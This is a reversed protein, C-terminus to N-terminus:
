APRKVDTTPMPVEDLYTRTVDLEDILANALATGGFCSLIEVRAQESCQRSKAAAFEMAVRASRAVELLRRAEEQLHLARMASSIIAGAEKKVGVPAVGVPAPNCAMRELMTAARDQNEIKERHQEMADEM